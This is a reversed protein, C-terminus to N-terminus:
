FPPVQAIAAGGIRCRAPFSFPCSRLAIPVFLSSLITPHVALHQFSAVLQGSIAVCTSGVLSHQSATKTRDLTYADWLWSTPVDLVFPIM